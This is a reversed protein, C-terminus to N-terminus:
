CGIAAMMALVSIRCKMSVIRVEDGVGGGHEDGGGGDDAHGRRGGAGAVMGGTSGVGAVDSSGNVVLSVRVEGALDRPLKKIIKRFGTQNLTQFELLQSAARHMDTLARKFSEKSKTSGRYPVPVVPPRSSPDMTRRRQLVPMSVGFEDPSVDVVGVDSDESLGGVSVGSGSVGAHKVGNHQRAAPTSDPTSSPAATLTPRPTALADFGVQPYDSSTAGGGAGSGSDYPKAGTSQLLSNFSSTTSQLPASQTTFTGGNGSATSPVHVGMSQAELERVQEFEKMLRVYRREFFGAVITIEDQFATRVCCLPTAALRRSNRCPIGSSTGLLQWM